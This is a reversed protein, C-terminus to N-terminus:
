TCARTAEALRKADIAAEVASREVSWREVQPQTSARELDAGAGPDPDGAAGLRRPAETEDTRM